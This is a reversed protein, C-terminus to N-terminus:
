VTLESRRGAQVHAAEVCFMSVADNFSYLRTGATGHKVGCQTHM